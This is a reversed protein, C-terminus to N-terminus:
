RAPGDLLAVLSTENPEPAVVTEAGVAALPAAVDASLCLHAVTRLAPVLDEREALGILLEASRRSFHLVADFHRARLAAAIEAPLHPAPRAAYCEWAVVRFGAAALSAGPETKRERATAHLLTAPPPMAAAILRSLGLADANAQRVDAFGAARAAAATRAGVAFAPRDRASLGALMPVAHASTLVLADWPEQPAPAGTPAIAIVPAVVAVHGRAALRRATREADARARTVLVQM